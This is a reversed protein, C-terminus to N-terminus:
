LMLFIKNPQRPHKIIKLIKKIVKNIVLVENRDNKSCYIKNGNDRPPLRISNKNGSSNLLTIILNLTICKAENIRM